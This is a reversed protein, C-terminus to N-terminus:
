LQPWIKTQGCFCSPIMNQKRFDLLIGSFKILNPTICVMYVFTLPGNYLQTM